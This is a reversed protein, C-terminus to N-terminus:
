SPIFSMTKTLDRSFSNHLSSDVVTPNPASDPWPPTLPTTSLSTVTLTSSLVYLRRLRHRCRHSRGKTEACRLEPRSPNQPPVTARGDESLTGEGKTKYRQAFRVWQWQVAPAGGIRAHPASFSDTRRDIRLDCSILLLKAFRLLCM